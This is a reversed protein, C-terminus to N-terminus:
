KIKMFSILQFNELLYQIKKIIKLLNQLHNSM